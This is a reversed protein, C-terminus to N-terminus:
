TRIVAVRDITVPERLEDALAKGPMAANGHTYAFVRRTTM